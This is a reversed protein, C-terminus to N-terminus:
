GPPWGLNRGGLLHFHLHPVTQGAQEGCNNVLRYGGKHVELKRAIDRAVIAIHGVVGADEDWLSDLSPIHKKPIILVHVPAQPNLDRFAMVKDDEYVVDASLEGKAIKCFVCDTTM